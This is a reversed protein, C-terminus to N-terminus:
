PEDATPGYTPPLPVGLLRLYVTLQGRHHILHNMVLTRLASVRPLSFIEQGDKKLTWRALLQGDAAGQELQRRMEGAHEEFLALIQGPSGFAEGHAPEAAIDYETTQLTLAGWRPIGALHAALQGLSMSKEHPKWALRDAPLRELLRRTAGLERDVDPLLADKLPM